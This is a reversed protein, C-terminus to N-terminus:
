PELYACDPGFESISKLYPLVALPVDVDAYGLRPMLGRVYIGGSQKDAVCIVVYDVDLTEAASIRSYRKNHVPELRKIREVDFSFDYIVLTSCRDAYELVLDRRVIGFIDMVLVRESGGAPVNFLTPELQVHCQLQGSTRPFVLRRNNEM